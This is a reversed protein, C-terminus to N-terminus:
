QRSEGELKDGNRELLLTIDMTDGITGAFESYITQACVINSSFLLTFLLFTFLIVKKM